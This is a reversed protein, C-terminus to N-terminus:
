EKRYSLDVEHDHILDEIQKQMLETISKFQPFDKVIQGLADYQKQTIPIALKLNNVM